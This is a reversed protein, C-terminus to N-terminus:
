VLYGPPHFCAQIFTFFSNSERFQIFFISAQVFNTKSKVTMETGPKTEEAVIELKPACCLIHYIVQRMGCPSGWIPSGPALM